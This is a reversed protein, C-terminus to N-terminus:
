ICINNCDQLGWLVKHEHPLGKLFSVFEEIEKKMGIQSFDGAHLLVDGPPVELNETKSHTDSVCVFRTHGEPKPTDWPLPQVVKCPQRVSLKEWAATPNRSLEESVPIPKFEGSTMVTGRSEFNGM